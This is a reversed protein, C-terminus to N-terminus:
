ENKLCGHPGATRPDLATAGKQVSDCFAVRGEPGVSTVVPAEHAEWDWGPGNLLHIHRKVVGSYEPTAFNEPNAADAPRQQVFHDVTFFKRAGHADTPPGHAPPRVVDLTPQIRPRWSRLGVPPLRARNGGREGAVLHVM